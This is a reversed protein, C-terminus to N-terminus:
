KFTYIIIVKALLVIFSSVTPFDFLKSPIFKTFYEDSNRACRPWVPVGVFRTEIKVYSSKKQLPLYRSVNRASSLEEVRFHTWLNKPGVGYVEEM